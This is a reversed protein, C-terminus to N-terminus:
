PRPNLHRADTARRRDRWSSTTTQELAIALEDAVTAPALDCMRAVQSALRAAHLLSCSAILPMVARATTVRGEVWRLRDGAARITNEVVVDVLPTGVDVLASSLAAHGSRRVAEAPDVGEPLRLAWPEIGHSRLLGLAHDAARRGAEDSDLAVVVDGGTSLNAIVDVHCATLATGCAALPAYPGTGTPAVAIADLPGEVLVPIRESPQSAILEGLGFLVERKRYIPTTPSNLYKPCRVGANPAARCTFAVVAGTSNRVGLTMRDRFRDVLTDNKTRMCLGSGELVADAYGLYRLRQTLWTWSRPAYGVSWVSDPRLCEHLRREALYEPVWSSSIQQQFLMAADAHVAEFADVCPDHHTSQTQQGM